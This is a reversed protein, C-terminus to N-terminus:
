LYHERKEDLLRPNLDQHGLFKKAVIRKYQRPSTISGRPNYFNKLHNLMFNFAILLFNLINSLLPMKKSALKPVLKLHWMHDSLRFKREQRHAASSITLKLEDNEFVLDSPNTVKEANKENREIQVKTVINSSVSNLGRSTSPIPENEEVSRSTSPVAQSTSPVPENEELARSTSPVPQSTSPIPENEDNSVSNKKRLKKLTQENEEKNKKLWTKYLDSM